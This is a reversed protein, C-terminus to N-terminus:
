AYRWIFGYGIKRRGKCCMCILTSNKKGFSRQAENASKWQKIFVGDKSYQNVPISLSYDANYQRDCWELNDSSNNFTNEDIHNVEKYNNPNPIFAEAVLRHIFFNKPKSNKSLQIKLYPYRDGSILPKKIRKRGNKVSRINGLNSVQYLGEYGKIDKWIEEM